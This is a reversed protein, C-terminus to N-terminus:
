KHLRVNQNLFLDYIKDIKKELNSIDESFSKEFLSLKQNFANLRQSIIWNIITFFLATLYFQFTHKGKTTASKGTVTVDWLDTVVDNGSTSEVEYVVYKGDLNNDAFTKATAGDAPVAFGFTRGGLTNRILSKAM